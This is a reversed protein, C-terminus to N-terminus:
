RDEPPDETRTGSGTDIDSDTDSDSDSGSGAASDNASNSDEDDVTEFDGLTVRGAGISKHLRTEFQVIKRFDWLEDRFFQDGSMFTGDRATVYAVRNAGVRSGGSTKRALMRKMENTTRPVAVEDGFEPKLEENLIRKAIKRHQPDLQDWIEEALQVNKPYGREASLKIWAWGRLPDREVGDGNVYMMGLNFQALKDAWRAALRYNGVAEEYDGQRYFMNGRELFQTGPANDAYNNINVTQATASAFAGIALLLCIVNRM